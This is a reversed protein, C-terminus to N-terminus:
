GGPRRGPEDQETPRPGPAPRAAGDRDRGALPPGHDREPAPGRLLRPRGPAADVRGRAAAQRPAADPHQAHQGPSGPSSPASSPRPPRTPTAPPATRPALNRAAAWAAFRAWQAAYTRRTHPARANAAAAAIRARDDPALGAPAPPVRVAGPAPASQTDPDMLPIISRSELRTKRDTRTRNEGGERLSVHAWLSGWLRTIPGATRDCRRAAFQPTQPPDSQARRRQCTRCAYTLSAAVIPPSDPSEIHDPRPRNHSRHGLAWDCRRSRSTPGRSPDRIVM